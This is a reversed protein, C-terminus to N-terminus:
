RNFFKIYLVLRRKVERPQTEREGREKGVEREELLSSEKSPVLSYPAVEGRM